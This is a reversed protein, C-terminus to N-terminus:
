SPCVGQAETAEAVQKARLHEIERKLALVESDVAQPINAEAVVYSRCVM